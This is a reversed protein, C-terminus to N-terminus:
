VVFQINCLDPFREELFFFADHLFPLIGSNNEGKGVINLFYSKEGEGM